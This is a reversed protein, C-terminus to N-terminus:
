CACTVACSAPRERCRAQPQAQAREGYLGTAEGWVTRFLVVHSEFDAGSEAVVVDGGEDALADEGILCVSILSNYAPSLLRYTESVEFRELFM